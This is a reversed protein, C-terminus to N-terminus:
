LEIRYFGNEGEPFFASAQQIVEPLDQSPKFQGNVEYNGQTDVLIDASLQLSNPEVISVILNGDECKLNAEFNGLDVPQQPTDVLANLWAGTGVLETCQPAMELHQIDVRFRGNATVAVPLPFQSLVSKAPLLIEANRLTFHEPSLLSLVANAKVYPQEQSRLVGGQLDINAKLLFLSLPSLNWNINNVIFGNADLALAQGKFLTGSVGAMQIDGKSQKQVTEAVYSAPLHVVLFVLYAFVLFIIWQWAKM